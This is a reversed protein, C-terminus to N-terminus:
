ASVEAIFSGADTRVHNVVLAISALAPLGADVGRVVFRDGRGVAAVGGLSGVGTAEDVTEGETPRVAAVTLRGRAAQGVTGGVLGRPQLRTPDAMVLEVNVAAGAADDASGARLYVAPVGGQALTTAVGAANADRFAAQDASLTPVPLAM